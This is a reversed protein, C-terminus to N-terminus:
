RTAEPIPRAATFLPAFLPKLLLAGAVTLHDRDSYLPKGSLTGRGQGHQCLVAAPDILQLGCQAAARRLMALARANRRLHDALPATVDGPTGAILRAQLTYPVRAAFGPEPLTAWTPGARTLACATAVFRTELLAPDPKAAPSGFVMTGHDLYAQWNAVLLVPAARPQTLPRLHQENFATCQSRPDPSVGGLVPMCSAYANFRLAGGAPVAALVGAVAAAAHSDGLVTAAIQDAGPAASGGAGSHLTCPPPVKGVVSFCEPPFPPGTEMASRVQGVAPDYRTTWGHSRAAATGLGATLLLGGILGVALTRRRATKRPLAEILRWSAHGLLFSVAIGLLAWLPEGPHSRMVLLAVPWHWLYISYSNVGIWGFLANGTLASTTQRAAIVLVTGAVPALAQWGPWGNERVLLASLIQLALGALQAPRGLRTPLPPALFVM